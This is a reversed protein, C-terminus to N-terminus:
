KIRIIEVNVLTYKKKHEKEYENLRKQTLKKCSLAVHKWPPMDFKRDSLKTLHQLSVGAESADGDRWLRLFFDLSGKTWKRFDMTYYNHLNCFLYLHFYVYKM